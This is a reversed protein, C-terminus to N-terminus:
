ISALWAAFNQWWPSNTLGFFIPIEIIFYLVLLGPFVWRVKKNNRDIISLGILVLNIMGFTLWQGNITIDPLYTFILRAFIPDVFTLTTAVMLRSHIPTSQRHYMALGYTVAFAFALSIQLYLLYTRFGFSAEDTTSIKNHALLIVSVVVLLAVPISAKGLQRHLELKKKKILYSQIVLMAFWILATIAHFHVYFARDFFIVYYSNWFAFVSIILLGIVIPGSNTYNLKISSM